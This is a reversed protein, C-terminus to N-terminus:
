APNIPFITDIRAQNAAQLRNIASIGNDTFNSPLVPSTHANDVLGTRQTFTREFGRNMIDNSIAPRNHGDAPSTSILGLLSHLIEHAMTEGILRGFIKVAFEELDPDTFSMSSLQMVLAQTEVDIGLDSNTVTNIYAGPYLEIRENYINAGVGTHNTDTLGLLSPRTPNVDLIEVINIRSAPIHAPVTETFSGLQWVTRANATSLLSDCTAKMESVIRDKLHSVHYSNLVSNFKTADETIRIFQPVCLTFTSTQPTSPAM